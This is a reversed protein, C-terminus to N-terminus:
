LVLNFFFFNHWSLFLSFLFNTEVVYALGWLSFLSAIVLTNFVGNFSICNIHSKCVKDLGLSNIFNFFILCRQYKHFVHKTLFLSHALPHFVRALSIKVHFFRFLISLKTSGHVVQNLGVVHSNLPLTIDLSYALARTRCSWTPLFNHTLM